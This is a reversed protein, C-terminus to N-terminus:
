ECSELCDPRGFSQWLSRVLLAVLERSQWCPRRMLVVLHSDIAINEKVRGLLVAGVYCLTMAGVACCLIDVPPPARFVVVFDDRGLLALYEDPPFDTPPRDLRPPLLSHINVEFDRLPTRQLM